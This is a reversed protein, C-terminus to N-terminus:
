RGLDHIRPAIHRGRYICGIIFRVRRTPFNFKRHHHGAEILRFCNTDTNALRVLDQASGSNGALYDNRVVARRISGRFYGFCRSSADDARGFFTVAAGDSHTNGSSQSGIDEHGVRVIAVVESLDGFKKVFKASTEIEYHSVAEPTANGLPGHRRQMAIETIRYKGSNAPKEEGRRASVEMAADACEPAVTKAAHVNTRCPHLEGAFHHDLGIEEAHCNGFNGSRERGIATTPRRMKATPAISPPVQAEQEHIARAPQKEVGADGEHQEAHCTTYPKQGARLEYPADTEIHMGKKIGKNEYQESELQYSKGDESLDKCNRFAQQRVVRSEVPYKATDSKFRAQRGSRDQYECTNAAGGESYGAPGPRSESSEVRRMHQTDDHGGNECERQANLNDEATEKEADKSEPPLCHYQRCEYGPANYSEGNDKRHNDRRKALVIM